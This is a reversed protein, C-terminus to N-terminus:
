IRRFRARLREATATFNGLDTWGWRVVGLGEDRLADERLKEAYVADASTEGPRLLQDYKIRGDLEGITKLGPWGFDVRGVLRGRANRVEWQLVPVPLGAQAIAVRSRSEGVSESRGDAFALARKAAPMGPWRLKGLLVAELEAPGVLGRALAADAIVVVQEFPLSRGLDLLTRAASTVTVGGVDVVEHPELAAAHVHVRRGRRGGSRQRRSTLHARDLPVSWVPLGHMLAASVHSVVVDGSVKELEARVLLLHRAEATSPPAGLVYAGPRVSCLDRARLLRRLEADSYGEARLRRRLQLEVQEGGM